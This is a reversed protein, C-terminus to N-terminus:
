TFSPLDYYDYNHKDLEAFQLPTLSSRQHRSPTWPLPPKPAGLQVLGPEVIPRGLVLWRIQNLRAVLPMREERPLSLITYNWDPM